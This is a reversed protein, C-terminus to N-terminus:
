EALLTVAVTTPEAPERVVVVDNAAGLGDGALVLWCTVNVAVTEVLETAGDPVTANETPPLTIEPHPLWGTTVLPEDPVALQAVDNAADLEGSDSVAANLGALPDPCAPDVLEACDKVTLLSAVLVPKAADSVLGGTPPLTV